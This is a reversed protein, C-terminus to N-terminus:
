QERSPQDERQNRLVDVIAPRSSPMPSPKPKFKPPFSSSDVVDVVAEGVLSTSVVVTDVSAVVVVEASSVSIVSSGVVVAVATEVVSSGSGDVVVDSSLVGVDVSAVDIM